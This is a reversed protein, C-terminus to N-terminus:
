VHAEPPANVVWRFEKVDVDAFLGAKVYPDAALIADLAARDPAEILLISGKPTDRDEALFPGGLKIRPGFGRIYDLHAPRTSLRLELAGAKDTATVLFLAM